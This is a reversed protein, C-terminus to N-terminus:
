QFAECKPGPCQVDLLSLWTVPRVSLLCGAHLFTSEQHWRCDLNTMSLFLSPNDRSGKELGCEAVNAKGDARLGLGRYLLALSNSPYHIDFTLDEPQDPCRRWGNRLSTRRTRTAYLTRTGNNTRMNARRNVMCRASVLLSQGRLGLRVQLALPPCLPDEPQTQMLLLFVCTELM